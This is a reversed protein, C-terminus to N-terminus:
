VAAIWEQLRKEDKVEEKEQIAKGTKAIKGTIDDFPPLDPGWVVVKQTPLSVSFANAARALPACRLSRPVCSIYGRTASDCSLAPPPSLLLIVASVISSSTTFFLM